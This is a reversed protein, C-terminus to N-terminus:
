DQGSGHPERPFSQVRGIHVAAATNNDDDAYLPHITVSEMCRNCLGFAFYSEVRSVEKTTCTLSRTRRGPPRVCLKGELRWGSIRAAGPHSGGNCTIPVTHGSAVSVMASRSTNWLRSHSSRSSVAPQKWRTHAASSRQQSEGVSVAAARGHTPAHHPRREVGTLGCGM